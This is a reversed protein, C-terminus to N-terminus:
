MRVMGNHDMTDVVTTSDADVVWAYRGCPRKITLTEVAALAGVHPRYGERCRRFDPAEIAELLRAVALQRRTDAVAPSGLPRPTGDGTPSDHRRGRTARDRKQQLREVLHHIHEDVHQEDAQAGVHDVGAAADKRIDRWCQQLFDEDLRGDLTRVRYGQQSAAQKAIGQLATPM